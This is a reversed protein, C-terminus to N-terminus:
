IHILSLYQTLTRDTIGYRLWFNKEEENFPQEHIKFWRKNEPTGCVANKHGVSFTSKTYSRNQESAGRNEISINLGLDHVITALVKRFETRVDLGMIAAAFWFCDGSYAENGFDKMRYCQSKEDFYINCSARRDNYLPNRFNRKPVFDIPMYFYFVELGHNTRQLIEEKLNM